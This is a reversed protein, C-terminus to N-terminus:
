ILSTNKKTKSNQSFNLFLLTTKKQSQFVKLKNSYYDRIIYYKDFKRVNISNYHMKNKNDPFFAWM